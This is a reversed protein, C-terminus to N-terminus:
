QTEKDWYMKNNKQYFYDKQMEYVDDYDVRYHFAQSKLYIAIRVYAVPKSEPRPGSTKYQIHWVANDTQIQCGGKKNWFGLIKEFDEAKLMYTNVTNSSVLISLSVENTEKFLYIKLPKTFELM